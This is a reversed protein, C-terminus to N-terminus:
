DDEDTDFGGKSLEMSQEALRQEAAIRGDLRRIYELAFGKVSPRPDDLWPAIEV